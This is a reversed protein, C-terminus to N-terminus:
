QMQVCEDSNYCKRFHDAMFILFKYVITSVIRCDSCIPCFKLGIFIKCCPLSEFMMVRLVVSKKAHFSDCLPEFDLYIVIFMERLQIWQHWYVAPKELSMWAKSTYKNGSMELKM